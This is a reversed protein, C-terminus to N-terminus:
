RGRRLFFALALLSLASSAPVTTCGPAAPLSETRLKAVLVNAVCVGYNPDQTSPACTASGICGEGALCTRMCRTTADGDWSACRLSPQDCYTGGVTCAEGESATPLVPYECQGNVCDFGAPCADAAGCAQSCYPRVDHQPSTICRRSNCHGDYGCHAGLPQCDPDPSACAQNSCVGDAACSEACDPDSLPGTCAPNCAGDDLCACDPDPTACGSTQCQHDADCTGGEFTQLWATIQAAYRDVRTDTNNGCSGTSTSHVGIVRESGDPFTYVTPGGSDGSCIGSKNAGSKGIDIQDPRTADLRTKGTRKLGSDDLDNNTIGYGMVRLPVYLPVADLSEGNWPKLPAPPEKSLVVVAIDNKFQVPDYAPHYVSKVATIWESAPAFDFSIHDTVKIVPSKGGEPYVCHAATLLTRRGILTSSCLAGGTPYRMYMAFIEPDGFDLSGSLIADSRSSASTAPPELELPGCAALFVVFSLLARRM